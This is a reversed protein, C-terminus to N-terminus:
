FFLAKSFVCFRLMFFLFVSKPALLLTGQCCYVLRFISKLRVGATVDTVKLIFNFNRLFMLMLIYIKIAAFDNFFM